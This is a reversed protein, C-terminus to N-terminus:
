ARPFSTFIDYSRFHRSPLSPRQVQNAEFVVRSFKPPKGGDAPISADSLVRGLLSRLVIVVAFMTSKLTRWLLPLTTRLTQESLYMAEETVDIESLKNQRWQVCLSRTFTSLDKVIAFLLDVDQVNEVSFAILRSLSGLSAVLPSAAMHQSQIYTSSKASWAFKMKTSQTVDADITSLFYGNHLGEKSFFPAQVLVPLLLDHSLNMKESVSLLDFIYGLTLTVSNAALNNSAEGERLALNVATVAASELTRRLSHSINREGRGEFGVLLGALACLHRWRPSRDDAGKIVAIAWEERSLTSRTSPNSPAAPSEDQRVLQIAASNFISLIRITTTLDDRRQWISPASLLQSTLLTINLANSLLTLLTTASGLLRRHDALCDQSPSLPISGRSM